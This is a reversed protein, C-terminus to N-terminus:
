EPRVYVNRQERRDLSISPAIAAIAFLGAMALKLIERTM